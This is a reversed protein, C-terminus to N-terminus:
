SVLHDASRAGTVWPVTGNLVFGTATEVASVPPKALHQRSTTLHSIGVTAFSEGSCLPPLLEAKIDENDSTAIRQCAANRQTLVFTTTLCAAAMMEYAALM